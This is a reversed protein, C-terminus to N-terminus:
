PAFTPSDASGFRLSGLTFLENEQGSVGFDQGASLVFWLNESVKKELIAGIRFATDNGQPGDWIRIYAAEASFNLDARGWRLRAAGFLTDQNFRLTPDDPDFVEEGERFRLHAIFQVRGRLARVNEFGYSFTSWATLGEYKLDDANGDISVWTPALAVNWATRGWSEARIRELGELYAKNPDGYQEAHAKVLADWEGPSMDPDYEPAPIDTTVQRFLNEVKPNMRPDGKDLLTLEMGFAVRQSKDDNTSAKTTAVSLNLNYLLRTFYSERYDNLSTQPGFFVQFPAAELAFGTQLTGTRDVGNLLSAAFERPTAPHSVTEPNVGLAVFAPAASIPRDFNLASVAKTLEEDSQSETAPAQATAAVSTASQNSISGATENRLRAVATQAAPQEVPLAAGNSDVDVQVPAVSPKEVESIPIFTIELTDGVQKSVAKMGEPVKIKLDGAIAAGALTATMGLVLFARHM